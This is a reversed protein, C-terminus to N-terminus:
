LGLREKLKANVMRNLRSTLNAETLSNVIYDTARALAAEITEKNNVLEIADEVTKSLVDKAKYQLEDKFKDLYEKKFVIDDSRYRSDSKVTKFFTRNIENKVAISAKAILEENVLKNLHKKTFNEVVSQRIDFELESDGGILRELADLSNIQIKVSM